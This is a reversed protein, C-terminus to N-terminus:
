LAGFSSALQYNRSFVVYEDREFAINFNTSYSQLKESIAEGNIRNVNRNNNSFVRPPLDAITVGPEPGNCWAFGRLQPKIEAASWDLKEKTRAEAPLEGDPTLRNITLDTKAPYLDGEVRQNYFIVAGAARRPLGTLGVSSELYDRFRHGEFLPPDQPEYAIKWLAQRAAESPYWYDPKDSPWFPRVVDRVADPLKVRSVARCNSAMAHYGPKWKPFDWMNQPNIGLLAYTIFNKPAETQRWAYWEEPTAKSITAGLFKLESRSNDYADESAYAIGFWPEDANQYTVVLPLLTKPVGGNETSEGNCAEPPHIAVGHGDSTKLGFVTPAIGVEVTRDNDKYTTIKVRCGVVIDFDLPEGKYTLNVKLRYYAARDDGPSKVEVSKTFTRRGLLVRGLETQAAYLAAFVLVAVAM